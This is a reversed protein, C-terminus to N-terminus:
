YKSKRNEWATHLFYYGVRIYLGQDENAIASKLIWQLIQNHFFVAITGVLFGLLSLLCAVLIYRTGFLQYM